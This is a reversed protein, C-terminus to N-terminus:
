KVLVIEDKRKKQMITGPKQQAEPHRDLEPPCSSCESEILMQRLDYFNHSDDQTLFTVAKGSKGARGTRGIRHTYDEINKAMDYNLILSVDKIDIGRGAVDTAVLVNKEGNKICALAYDRQDQGKGGHLSIADYGYKELQRALVDCGKKQNVFVIVPGLELCNEEELISIMKKAKQGDPVFFAKQVIRDAAKGISGIYVTCPRRMFTKAIREVPPPMTATFMVTQRFKNRDFFNKKMAEEDDLAEDDQKENTVPMHSLIKQVEPEFGMDIMRDAEDLVIYTCQSLVLYRNEIVDILRGPTAIVIECGMRLKLGQEERSAGGIVAVSRIGLPAGFKVVEEEIQTALERTPALIIAYPGKDADEVRINRPLSDIWVLLPVLFALTKGSGTEAVGIIDRNQMGIPIAQRQIPTPDKYGVDSIIKLINEPIISEKWYRLPKPINGGKTAISFDERLIRWDRDRMMELPKKRWHREDFAKQQEKKKRIDQLEKNRSSQDESWKEDLLKSYFAGAEGRQAKIDIGAIYGRGFLQVQHRERYLPNYDNSTDDGADWDFVFKRENQKRVKKKKKAAGLYRDKIATQEKESDKGTRRDERDNRRTDLEKRRQRREFEPDNQIRGQQFIERQKARQEDARKRAEDAEKQRKALAIKAKEEKSIFKPKSLEDEKAKKADIIEELSLPTANTSLKVENEELLAPNVPVQAGGKLIYKIKEESSLKEPIKFIEKERPKRTRDTPRREPSRSRGRKRHDRRDDRGM